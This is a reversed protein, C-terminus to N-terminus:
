PAGCDITERTPDDPSPATAVGIAKGKTADLATDVIKANTFNAHQVNAKDLIAGELHADTFDAGELHARTLNAGELHAGTLDVGKRKKRQEGTKLVTSSLDADTLIACQMFAGKFSAAPQARSGKLVSKSLNAFRLDQQRHDISSNYPPAPELCLGVM